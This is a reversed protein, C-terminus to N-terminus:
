LVAESMCSYIDEIGHLARRPPHSSLFAADSHPDDPHYGHMGVPIWQPGNFDSRALLCGPELLFILQGYRQDDFYIGLQRLESDPLIRGCGTKALASVVAARANDSFFWFRAMTSDYVALFDEPSRLGLSDIDRMLDYHRTVPTMGHDSFLSIRAGPDIRRADDFLARIGAAYFDLQQSLASDERTHEHLLHDMESLYLFFFRADSSNMDQRARALVQADTFHHYTYVRYPVGASELRDFISPGGSVGHTEYICRREVYNFWPLLKPSVHCEFTPGMGLFRRGLEKMIKRTVRNDAIPTPVHRLFRLWQFPSNAPDYYFLNWHGTQAPLLGTLITPIAGSSFGLVTRLPMRVPLIDDLFPRGQLFRWGLADILVFIHINRDNTM